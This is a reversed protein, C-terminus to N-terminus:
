ALGDRVARAAAEARSAVGLKALIHTVHTEATRPSIFLTEAIESNSRGATMLRLVERERTTLPSGDRNPREGWGAGEVAMLVREVESRVEGPRMRRGTQWAEAYAADGIRQRASAEAQEFAVREPLDLAVGHAATTAAGFLRATSEPAGVLAALVAASELFMTPHRQPWSTWEHPLQARLLGAARRLDGQHGALMALYSVSWASVLPDGLAAAEERAGELLATARAMAGRGYAVVGLHYDAVIRAWVEGAQECLRRAAAFYAEAAAYDGRDEALIGLLNSAHGEQAMDGLSRALALGQELFDAARPDDLTQALHGASCLAGCRASPPADHADELARELWALGERYHAGLYWFWGLQDALSLMEGMRGTEDLWALAARLNPHEAELHDVAGPLVVPLLTAAAQHALALCWTAHRDRIVAEEGAAALHELGFERITELMLYRPEGGPRDEERLLSKDVLSCVANFVDLGDEGPATVSEAAELTFEGVFVALRRFIIQEETPLLDYSWAITNRITRQREPLDRAGGTLLPLRRELRALLAAPPLHAVRAAALEIALPLGDLRRCIQAVVAANEDTLAFDPRGARARVVFLRVAEVEGLKSATTEGADPLAFPLVPFVQEGSIQLVVRSTVLVTLRRCATLLKTVFTAAEVVQEFNDLVLLLHRDKLTVALLETLPQDGAPRVGLAGALTPGVLDPDTVPALPVFVVGDAFRGALAEAVRLALRTKGVGGPGTLTVLRVGDQRLLAAVNEVERTRGIFSTLPAPLSVAVPGCELLPPLPIPQSASRDAPPANAM